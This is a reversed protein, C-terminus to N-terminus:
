EVNIEVSVEGIQVEYTGPPTGILTYDFTHFCTCDCPDSDDFDYSLTITRAGIDLLANASDFTTCCNEEFSHTVFLNTGGEGQEVSFDDMRGPEELANVCQAAVLPSVELEIPDDQPDPNPEPAESFGEIGGLQGESLEGEACVTVSEGEYVELGEPCAFGTEVLLDNSIICVSIGDVESADAQGCDLGGVPESSDDTCAGIQVCLMALVLVGAEITKVM